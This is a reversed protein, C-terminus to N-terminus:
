GARALGSQQDSLRQRFGFQEVDSVVGPWHEGCSQKADIKRDRGNGGGSRKAYKKEDDAGTGGRSKVVDHHPLVGGKNATTVCMNKRLQQWSGSNM